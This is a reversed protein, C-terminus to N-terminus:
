KSQFYQKSSLLSSPAVLPNGLTNKVEYPLTPGSPATVVFFINASQILQIDISYWHTLCIYLEGKFDSNWHHNVSEEHFYVTTLHHIKRHTWSTTVWKKYYIVIYFPDSSRLCITSLSICLFKDCISLRSHIDFWQHISYVTCQAHQIDLFYHGM